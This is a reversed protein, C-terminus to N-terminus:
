GVKGQMWCYGGDVAVLGVGCGEEEGSVTLQRSRLRVNKQSEAVVLTLDKGKNDIQWWLFGAITGDISVLKGEDM